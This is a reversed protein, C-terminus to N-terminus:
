FRTTLGLQAINNVTNNHAGHVAQNMYGAEVDVMKSFRYGIAAYARNQDFVSNNLLAKHQLNLFVENQFAAYFGNTFAKEVRQLPLIGRFYYRIRQSFIEDNAGEIFRQELRLRHNFSLRLLKHNFAYQEWIRNETLTTNSTGDLHTYTNVLCYGVTASNDKNIYYTIGPRVLLNRIGDLQDVSRVQVDLHMGWKGTFKTSNFLAFWGSHQSQTQAHVSSIGCALLFYFLLNKLILNTNLNFM